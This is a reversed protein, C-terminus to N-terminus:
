GLLYRRVENLNVYIEIFNVYVVSFNIYIESFNIVILATKYDKSNLPPSKIVRSTLKYTKSNDKKPNIPVFSHMKTRMGIPHYKAMNNREAWDNRCFTAVLFRRGHSIIKLYLGNM